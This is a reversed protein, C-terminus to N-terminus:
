HLSFSLPTYIQHIPFERIPSSAPPSILWTAVGGWLDDMKLRVIIIIGVWDYLNQVHFVSSQSVSHLTRMCDKENMYLVLKKKKKEFAIKDKRM